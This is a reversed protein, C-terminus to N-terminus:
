RNEKKSTKYSEPIGDEDLYRLPLEHMHLTRLAARVEPGDVDSWVGITFVGGMQVIRVGARNLVAM